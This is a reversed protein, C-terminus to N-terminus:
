YWDALPTQLAKLGSCYNCSGSLPQKWFGCNGETSGNDDNEARFWNSCWHGVCYYVICEKILLLWIGTHPKPISVLTSYDSFYTGISITNNEKSNNISINVTILSQNRLILIRMMLLRITSDIRNSYLDIDYMIICLVSKKPPHALVSVM